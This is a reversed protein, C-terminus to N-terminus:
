NELPFNKLLFVFSMVQWCRVGLSLVNRTFIEAQPSTTERQGITPPLRLRTLWGRVPTSDGVSLPRASFTGAPILYPRKVVEAGNRSKM